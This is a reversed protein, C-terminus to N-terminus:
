HQLFIKYSLNFTRALSFFDTRDLQNDANNSFQSKLINKKNFANLVSLAISSKINKSLSVNYNVSADVRFYPALTNSNPANFQNNQVLTTPPASNWNLGFATTLNHHKYTLTFNARHRIDLNNRFEAPTFEEFTYSNDNVTYALWTSIKNFTKM